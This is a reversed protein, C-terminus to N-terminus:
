RSAELKAAAQQTVALAQKALQAAQADAKGSPQQMAQLASRLKASAERLQDAAASRDPAAGPSASRSTGSAGAGAAANKPTGSPGAVPNAGKPMGASGAASSVRLPLLIMAERADYLAQNATEIAENRQAGAPRQAMAQVAERLQQAAQQLREMAKPDNPHAPTGPGTWMDPPLELMASQTEFLAKNAAKTAQNRQDGAPQQAMARIAERFRQAADQLRTIWATEDAAESGAASAASAPPQAAVAKPKAPEAQPTAALSPACLGAALATCLLTTRM